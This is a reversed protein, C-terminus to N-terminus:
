ARFPKCPSSSAPTTATSCAGRTPATVSDPKRWCKKASARPSPAKALADRVPLSYGLHFKRIIDDRLGRQRFYAMGIAVGDVHNHLTEEFYKNAWENLVFMSERVSQAAREENTLEKEQIEIGYKKALWRLAEPYNMQEHEMVFHVVNGGKGCSFCKCLQKSPSVVFSPTKENHFPCLGKYNVGAKRLTVFEKVVDVIDAASMIREITERDIM